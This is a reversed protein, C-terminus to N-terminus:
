HIQLRLLPACVEEPVAVVGEGDALSHRRPSIEDLLLDDLDEATDQVPESHRRVHSAGDQM